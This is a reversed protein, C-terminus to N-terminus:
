ATGAIELNDFTNFKQVGVQRVLLTYIIWGLRFKAGELTLGDMIPEHLAEGDVYTWVELQYRGKGTARIAYVQSPDPLGLDFTPIAYDAGEFLAGWQRALRLGTETLHPEPSYGLADGNFPPPLSGATNM